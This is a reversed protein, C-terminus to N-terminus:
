IRTGGGWSLAAFWYLIYNSTQKQVCPMFVLIILWLVFIAVPVSWTRKCDFSTSNESKKWYNFNTLIIDWMKIFHYSWRLNFSGKDRSCCRGLETNQYSWQGTFTSISQHSLGHPLSLMALFQCWSHLITHRLKWHWGGICRNFLPLTLYHNFKLSSRFIQKLNSSLELKYQFTEDAWAM